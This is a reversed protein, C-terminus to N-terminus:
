GGSNLSIHLAMFFKYYVPASVIGGGNAFVSSSFLVLIVASPFIKTLKGHSRLIVLNNKNPIANFHMYYAMIM